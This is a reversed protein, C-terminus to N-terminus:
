WVWPLTFLMITTVMGLGIVLVGLLIAWKGQSVGRRHGSYGLLAGIAALVISIFGFPYIILLGIVCLVLGINAANEAEVVEPPKTAYPPAYPYPVAFPQAYPYPAAYPQAYPQAYPYPGPYSYSVVQGPAPPYPYPQVPAYPGAMPQPGRRRDEECRPCLASSPDLHTEAGCRACRGWPRVGARSDGAM